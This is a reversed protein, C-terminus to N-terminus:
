HKLGMEKTIKREIGRGIEKAGHYPVPYIRGDKEDIYHSGETRIHLWGNRKIKRHLESSKM